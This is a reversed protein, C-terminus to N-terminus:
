AAAFFSNSRKTAGRRFLYSFLKRTLLLHAIANIGTAKVDSGDLVPPTQAPFPHTLFISFIKFFHQCEFRIPFYKAGDLQM